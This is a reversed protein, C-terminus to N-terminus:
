ASENPALHSKIQPLTRPRYPTFAMKEHTSCYSTAPSCACGCFLFTEFHQPDGIPWRCMGSQVKMLQVPVSGPIRLWHLSDKQKLMFKRADDRRQLLPVGFPAPTEPHTIETMEIKRGKRTDFSRGSTSFLVERIRRHSRVDRSVNIRATGM